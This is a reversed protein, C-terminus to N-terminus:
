PGKVLVAVAVILYVAWGLIISSPLLKGFVTNPRFLIPKIRYLADLGYPTIDQCMDLLTHIIRFSHWATTLWVVSLLLGVVAVGLQFVHDSALFGAIAFLISNTTLFIGTRSVLLTDEKDWRDRIAAYKPLDFSESAKAEGRDMVIGGESLAGAM